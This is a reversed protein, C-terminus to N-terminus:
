AVHARQACALLLLDTICVSHQAPGTSFVNRQAHEATCARSHVHQAAYARQQAACCCNSGFECPEGPHYLGSNKLFCLLGHGRAHWWPIRIVFPGTGDPMHVRWHAKYSCGTDIYMLRVDAGMLLHALLVDYYTFREPAPMALVCKKLPQGHACVGAALGCVDSISSCQSTDRACTLHPHCNDRAMAEAELDADDASSSALGTSSSSSGGGLGSSGTSSLPLGGGAAQMKWVDTHADAFFHGHPLQHFGSSSSAKGASRYRNAKANADFCAVPVVPKGTPGIQEM